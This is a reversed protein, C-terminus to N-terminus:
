LYIDFGKPNENEGTTAVQISRNSSGERTAEAAARSFSFGHAGGGGAVLAAGSRICTFVGQEQLIFTDGDL